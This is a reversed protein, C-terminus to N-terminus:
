IESDNIISKGDDRSLTNEFDDYERIYTAHETIKRVLEDVNDGDNLFENIINM